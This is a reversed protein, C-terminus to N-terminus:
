EFSEMFYCYINIYVVYEIKYATYLNFSVELVYINFIANDNYTEFFESMKWSNRNSVIAYKTLEPIFYFELHTGVTVVTLGFSSPPCGTTFVNKPWKDNSFGVPPRNLM